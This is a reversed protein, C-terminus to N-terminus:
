LNSEWTKLGIKLYDFIQQLKRTSLQDNHKLFRYGQAENIGTAKWLRYPSIGQAKLSAKIIQNFQM